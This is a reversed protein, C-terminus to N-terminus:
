EWDSERWTGNKMAEYEEDSVDEGYFECKFLDILRSVAWIAGYGAVIIAAAALVDAIPLSLGSLM